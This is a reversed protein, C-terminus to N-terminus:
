THAPNSQVGQDMTKHSFILKKKQSCALIKANKMNLFFPHIKRFHMHHPQSTTSAIGTSTNQMTNLPTTHSTHWTYCIHRDASYCSIHHQPLTHGPAQQQTNQGLPLRTNTHHHHYIHAITSSFPVTHPELKHYKRM